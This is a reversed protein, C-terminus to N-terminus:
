LPWARVLGALLSWGVVVHRGAHGEFWGHPSPFHEAAHDVLVVSGRSCSWSGQLDSLVRSTKSRYVRTARRIAAGGASVQQTSTEIGSLTGQDASDGAAIFDHLATSVEARMGTVCAPPLDALAARSDAALRTIAGQLRGLSHASGARSVKELDTGIATLQAM